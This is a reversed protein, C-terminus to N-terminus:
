GTEKITPPRGLIEIGHAKAPDLDVSRRVQCDKHRRRTQGM